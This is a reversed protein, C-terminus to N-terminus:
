ADDRSWYAHALILAGAASPAAQFARTCRDIPALWPRRAYAAECSDDAPAAGVAPAAPPPAPAAAAPAPAPAPAAPRATTVAAPTATAGAAPAGVGIKIRVLTSM